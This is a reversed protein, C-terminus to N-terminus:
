KHKKYNNITTNLHLYIFSVSARRCHHPLFHLDIKPIVPHRSSMGTHGWAHKKLPLRPKLTCM